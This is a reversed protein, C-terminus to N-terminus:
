IHILSLDPTPDPLVELEPAIRRALTMADAILRRHAASRADVLTLLQGQLEAIGEGTSASTAVITPPARGAAVVHSALDDVCRQVDDGSLEDIRNLVVTVVEAHDTLMALPGHHLDARAYKVPDVVVILGDVRRALRDATERHSVVVSDHDPLDILVLGDPFGDPALVRDDVQLWRLLAAAPDGDGDDPSTPAATIALPWSTTPRRVGETAVPVGVLRNVLSSKGVGTGGAVAVVTLGDGLALREDITARLAAADAVQPDALRGSGLEIITDLATVVEGLDAPAHRARRRM